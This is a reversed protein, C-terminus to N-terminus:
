PAEGSVGAATGALLDSLGVILDKPPRDVFVGCRSGTDDMATDPGVMGRVFLYVAGGMHLDYDYGPLRLTLYRHLATLYLLYQIYYHKKAVEQAM